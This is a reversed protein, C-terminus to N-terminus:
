LSARHATADRIEQQIRALVDVRGDRHFINYTEFPIMRGDPQVMHVCSKKLARVDLNAADMFQVILLRFVNEYSLGPADVRPLCCLLDSLRRAQADPSHNTAFLSFVRERLAPDREFVITNHPGALLDQPSLHRTLPTVEGGTKLAYAMALSDPNCPVPLIDAPTFLGSQEAVLRRVASVTLRGASGASGAPGDTRGAHQVPQVTVGRVCRHGLAHRIVDGLEGDNVGAALTMVLTTSLGHEDLAELAQDHVERLDAGRLARLPGERLSDFQLYVELGQGYSALREVFGPERALRLGNTNVMLHRIPRRRAADLIAFFEPHVTPEGGSIQVVDPEGESAVVADLMREIMEIPRHLTREPGSGAYCVPCRLNCQDTVELVTVCSHQMHDPCLGCDYPCGFEMPTSFRRPLEPAKVYVERAMRYWAADDALLVREFGHAPCWKELIVAEDRLLIKGEAPRLCTTCITSTTDHFLYPRNQRAM